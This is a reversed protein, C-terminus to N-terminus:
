KLLSEVHRGFSLKDLTKRHGVTAVAEAGAVNGLFATIDMPVGQVACLATVALFADGAGVRDVVHVALAPAEHFGSKGCYGLCGFRGRTVFAQVASLRNSVDQLMPRLDGRHSRFELRLEQEALSIYDARPYKSITHFGMNGANTQTNVALFAAEDALVGIAPGGLMAHGYDAVVVLDHGPAMEKLCSCVAETDEASMPDDNMTYVEFVPLDLYTERYRRKVITPSERKYVFRANVNGALQGRIWAEETNQAGLMALLSVEVCFGALHNAIAVAGGAFRENSMYQMAVIPAKASRNLTRCYYYEDLIAEGVVLVKLPRASELPGFLESPSYAGSVEGLYRQTDDPFPSLFRNILHSSSSTVDEIFAIEAGVARVADEERLIEPTRNNRYEAGKAYIHPKLLHITEVATPWENIAVLDVCDISALVEARLTETFVPRHPGKNVFRDPTVTVVLFDGLSKAKQLYRIHGIHVLDFVGHCHVIRSNRQRLSELAEAVGALPKIKESAM